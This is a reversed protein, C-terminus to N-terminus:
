RTPPFSPALAPATTPAIAPAVFYAGTDLEKLLTKGPSNFHWHAVLCDQACRQTAEHEGAGNPGIISTILGPEISLNVGTLANLGGFSLTVNAIKLTDM